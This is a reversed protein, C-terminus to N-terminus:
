QNNGPKSLETVLQLTAQMVLDQPNDACYKDLWVQMAPGDPVTFAAHRGGDRAWVGVVFGHVWSMVVTEKVQTKSSPDAASAKRASVWYGCTQKGAGVYVGEQARTATSAALLTCVFIFNRM